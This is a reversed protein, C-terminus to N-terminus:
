LRPLASSAGGALDGLVDRVVTVQDRGVRRALGREFEAHFGRALRLAAEGREGLSLLKARADRPDPERRVYGRDVMEQILKSAGQITIGLGGAIASISTTGQDLTRFVYGYSRGLDDFGGAALREHLEDVFRQYALGLVIGFDLQAM